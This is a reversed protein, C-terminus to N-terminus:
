LYETTFMDVPQLYGVRRRSRGAWELLGAGLLEDMAVSLAPSEMSERTLAETEKLRSQVDRLSKLLTAAAPSLKSLALECGTATKMM